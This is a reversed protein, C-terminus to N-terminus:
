DLNAVKMERLIGCLLTYVTKSPYLNGAKNRTEAVYVCLWKNLLERSCSPLLLYMPCNREPNRSNYDDVWARFNDIAWKNSCASNKPITFTAM